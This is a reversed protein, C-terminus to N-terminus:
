FSKLICYVILNIVETASMSNFYSWLESVDYDIVVNHELTIVRDVSLPLLQPVSLKWWVHNTSNHLHRIKGVAAYITYFSMQVVSLLFTLFLSVTLVLSISSVKAM